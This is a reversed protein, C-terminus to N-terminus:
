GLGAIDALTGDICVLTQALRDSRGPKLLSFEQRLGRLEVAYEARSSASMRELYVPPGPAAPNEKWILPELMIDGDGPKFEVRSFYANEGRTYLDCLSALCVGEAQYVAAVSDALAKEPSIRPASLVRAGTRWAVEESPNAFPRYFYECASGGEAALRGLAGASGLGCPVFWRLRDWHQPPEMLVGGLSGFACGLQHIIESRRGRSASLEKVEVMYDVAAAIRKLHEFEQPDDVRLGWSAQGITWEPRAARIYDATRVLIEAHYEAPSLRKCKECECRGQDASQLSVGDLGWVPDLHFDIVRRMWDWAATSQLCMAQPNNGGATVEPVKRIVEEFGWSYVGLGAMIKVGHGHAAEVYTKLMGARAPDIVNEFPVPWDRSRFLGWVCDHNLGWEAETALFALQDRLLTEDWRICPWSDNPTPESALDRLWGVSVRYKFATEPDPRNLALTGDGRGCAGLSLAGLGAAASRVLM